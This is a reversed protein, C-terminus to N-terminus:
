AAVVNPPCHGVALGGIGGAFDLLVNDDADTLAAGQAKVVAIPTLKAAGRATAAERRTVIARSNPGPLETCLQITPM